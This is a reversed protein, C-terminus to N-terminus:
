PLPPRMFHTQFNEERQLKKPITQAPYTNTRRQFKALIQRHLWRARHKQKNPLKKIVTESETSTIPRNMNEVEEQNLRPLSRKKFFKDIEELNGM